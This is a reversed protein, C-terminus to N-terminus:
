QLKLGKINAFFDGGGRGNTYEASFIFEAGVGKMERFMIASIRPVGPPFDRPEDLEADKYAYQTGTDDVLYVNEGPRSLWVRVPGKTRNLYRLKLVLGEAERTFSVVEIRFRDNEFFLTKRTNKTTKDKAKPTGGFSTEKEVTESLLAAILPTKPLDVEAAALSNGTELDVLRATVSVSNGLDSITGLVMGEAGLLEGVKKASNLNILGSYGLKQEKLVRELQDREVVQMGKQILDTFLKEQLNKTFQNFGQNYSFQAVVLRKISKKIQYAKDGTQPIESKEMVRALTLKKRVRYAEAKGIIQEEYGLIENGARIPEGLRVIEFMNGQLIGDQQGLNLYLIGDSSVNVVQGENAFALKESLVAIKQNLDETAHSQGRFFVTLLTLGIVFVVRRARM